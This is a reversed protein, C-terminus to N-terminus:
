GEETTEESLHAEFDRSHHLVRLIEIGNNSVLSRYFLLYARFGQVPWVRLNHLRSDNSSRPSGMNPFAVLSKATSELADLFRNARKADSQALFDFIERADRRADPQVLAGPTLAVPSNEQSM